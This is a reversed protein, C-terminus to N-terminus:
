RSQGASQVPTAIDQPSCKTQGGKLEAVAQRLDECIHRLSEKDHGASAYVRPKGITLKIPKPRPFWAGKPLAERAGSLHCPVVPVNSGALLMAIGPRFAGIQGTESRTGEPFIILINGPRALLQRCLAISQRAHSQRNFPLANVVLVAMAIRPVNVFFYDAAAAPFTQHLRRLPVASLLCLADLHSSHNAVLICSGEDPLNETGIIRFRHYMRLSVRMLIAVVSRVLYTLMDPERPFRRLRQMLPDALDQAPEYHWTDM